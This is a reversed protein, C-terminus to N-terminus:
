GCLRRVAYRHLHSVDLEDKTEAWIEDRTVRLLRRPWGPASPSGEHLYVSGELVGRASYAEWHDAGDDREERLLWITGDHGSVVSRVPPYAEPLDLADLAIQRRRASTLNTFDNPGAHRDGWEDRIRQAAGRDIPKPQYPISRALLTDGSVDIRLIDFSPSPRSRVEGILVVESGDSAVGTSQLAWLPHPAYGLGEMTVWPKELLGLTDLIEGTRSV